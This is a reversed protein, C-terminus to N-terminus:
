RVYCRLYYGHASIYAFLGCVTGQFLFVNRQPSKVGIGHGNGVEVGIRLSLLALGIVGVEDTIMKMERIAMAGVPQAPEDILAPDHLVEIIHFQFDAFSNSTLHLKPLLSVTAILSSDEATIGFLHDTKLVTKNM